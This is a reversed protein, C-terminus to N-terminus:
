RPKVTAVRGGSMRVLDSPTLRFLANPTGAAAWIADYRLLDEDVFATLTTRHGLPPIGGIAFGTHERVFDADAKGIPEGVLAAVTGEDVRNAGSAIVLVPAGSRLGRFVLSKAIQGVDCGALRAAEAATRTTHESEMVRYYFGLATLTDQVRQATPSLTAPM